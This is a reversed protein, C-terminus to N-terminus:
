AAERILSYDQRRRVPTFGAGRILAEMEEISTRYTTGAASVVNEEMMVSGFNDAGFRLAIQGIKIGMTVWYTLFGGSEDQLGRLLLLHEARDRATEVHGYLMTCNSPIGLVHAQRHVAIWEEGALKRDAITARVATGFVEAITRTYAGDETPTRAFSCFTCVNRLVCLNTPNIHQNAAFFVRDGNKARNALDALTGIGLLDHSQYLAVIDEFDLRGGGQM